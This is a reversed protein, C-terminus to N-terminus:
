IHILVEVARTRKARRRAPVPTPLAQYHPFRLQVVLPAAGLPRYLTYGILFRGRYETFLLLFVM